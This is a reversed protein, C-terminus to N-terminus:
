EQQFKLLEHYAKNLTSEMSLLKDSSEYYLSIGTLYEILPIEGMELAKTLLAINSYQALEKRYSSISQQLVLTKTHQAKMENYFQLKFDTQLEETAIAKARAYKVTNKNEWLPISVGLSIGQFQEGVVTESMYGAHFKPLSQATQLQQQKHTIALEQKIWKLVANNQEAQIYWHEFDPMLQPITFVSDTFEIEKGGNLRTLEALLLQQDININELDRSLNLLYVQTKNFELINTEGTEFKKKFAEAIQQANRLRKNYEARLGNQYTLEVCLLSVHLLIERRQRQYELEAQENKLNSIQNRYAYATPFDFSQTISFDTRNGIGDPKGWLYNFEVEPNSPFIGTKNGIKEADMNKRYASLSTNNREVLTLVTDFSSQSLANFSITWLIIALFKKM